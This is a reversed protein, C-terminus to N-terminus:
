KCKQKQCDSKNLVVYMENFAYKKQMRHSDYRYYSDQGIQIEHISHSRSNLQVEFYKSKLM